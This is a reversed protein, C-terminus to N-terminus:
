LLISNNPAFGKAVPNVKSKIHYYLLNKPFSQLSAKEALGSAPHHTINKKLFVFVLTQM